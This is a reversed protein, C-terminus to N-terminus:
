KLGVLMRPTRKVDKVVGSYKGHSRLGLKWGFWCTLSDLSKGVDHRSETKADHMVFCLLASLM